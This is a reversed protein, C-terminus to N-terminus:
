RYRVGRTREHVEKRSKGLHVSIDGDNVAHLGLIVVKQSHRKYIYGVGEWRYGKVRRFSLGRDRGLGEQVNM